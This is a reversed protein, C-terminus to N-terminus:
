FFFFFDSFGFFCWDLWLLHNFLAIKILFFWVLRFYLSLATRIQSLLPENRPQMHMVFVYIYIFACSFM